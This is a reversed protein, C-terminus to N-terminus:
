EELLKALDVAPLTERGGVPPPQYAVYGHGEWRLWTLSADELATAFHALVSLPRGDPTLAEVEITVRTLEVRDGVAFQRARASRTMQDIEHRLYGDHPTVRLTREDLRELTVPTTATALWYLHAPCPLDRSRRTIPIYGVLADSPTTAIIVTRSPDTPLTADARDLVRGVAVM